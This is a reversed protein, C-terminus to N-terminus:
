LERLAKLAEDVKAADLKLVAEDGPRRSYVASDKRGLVLVVLPKGAGLKLTVKAAPADLGYSAPPQPKDVFEQVELGTLKFLADDVKTRDLDKQDPATRKWAQTEAGDKDKSSSRALVSKKTGEELEIGEVDYTSIDGLRKQRLEKMGKALDDPLASPIVAVLSSSAERAHYKKDAPSSGIELRRATGDALGLTVSRLPKVLGFPKLDRAEEAAIQEMRLGEITGLLGDVAWRGARTALPKTFVWEGADDRSLAYGEGDPGTVELTRVADRKVKLLDRDRLDFPKKSFSGEQYGPVTFVRPSGPLKAYLGASDPTKAGLLLQVPQEVGELMVSITHRPRDLGFPALDQANEAIVEEVELNELSTLVAEAETADAPARMPAEMRWAAGQKVLRITEGDAPALVLQRAKVKNVAVAKAKAAKEDKPPKKEEIFHIYAGLAALVGLALWTKFFPSKM